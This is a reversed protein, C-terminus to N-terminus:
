LKRGAAAKLAYGSTGLRLNEQLAQGDSEQNLFVVKSEPLFRLIATEVGDLNRLALDILILDPRLEQARQVAERGDSVESIV